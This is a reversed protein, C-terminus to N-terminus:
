ENSDKEIISFINYWMSIFFAEIIANVYATLLFLLFMIFFISYKVLELNAVGTKLFLYLVLIPIGVLIVINILFRIYM